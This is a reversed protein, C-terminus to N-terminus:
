NTCDPCTTEGSGSCSVCKKANKALGTGKCSICLGDGKTCYDCEEYVYVYGIGDCPNCTFQQWTFPNIIIGDGNCSSCKVFDEEKGTGECFFCKGLYKNDYCLNCLTKGKGRCDECTITRSNYCTYCKVEEPETVDSNQISAVIIIAVFFAM